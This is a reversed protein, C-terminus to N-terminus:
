TIHVGKWDGGAKIAAIKQTASELEVLLEHQIEEDTRPKLLNPEEKLLLTIKKGLRVGLKIAPQEAHLEALGASIAFFFQTYTLCEEEDLHVKVGAYKGRKEIKMTVVNRAQLVLSM